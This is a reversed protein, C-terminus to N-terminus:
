ERELTEIDTITESDEEYTESWKITNQTVEIIQFISDNFIFTEGNYTYSAIPYDIFDDENAMCTGDAPFSPFYELYRATDETIFYKDLCDEPEIIEEGESILSVVRWNGIISSPTSQEQNNDDDSGCSILIMTMSILTITKLFKM